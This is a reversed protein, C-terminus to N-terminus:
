FWLSVIDLEFGPLLQSQVKGRKEIEQCPAFKEDKNVYITISEAELDVIWYEKVGHKEYIKFKKRLDYYATSPSLIEMVLDPAGKIREKEIIDLREKSIFIIDPQYTETEEFFVDIPAHFVEGLQKEMVFNALKTVLRTSIRQHQPSPSPVMILKGGILQYPSGDPLRAYDEYTYIKDELIERAKVINM